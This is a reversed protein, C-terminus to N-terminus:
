PKEAAKKNNLAKKAADKARKENRLSTEYYRQASRGRRELDRIRIEIEREINRYENRLSDLATESAQSVDRRARKEADFQAKKISEEEARLFRLSDEAARINGQAVVVLSDAKTVGIKLSEIREKLKNIKAQARLLRQDDQAQANAIWWWCLGLCIVGVIRM